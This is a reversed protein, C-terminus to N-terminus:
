FTGRSKYGFQMANFATESWASGDPQLPQRDFLTAYTTTLTHDAGDQYTSGDYSHLSLKADTGADTKKVLPIIIAARVVYNVPVSINGTNFTDRLGSSLAKNYNTDGDSLTESVNQWNNATGIPTFAANAGSASAFSPLFRIGSPCADSEGATTDVYFDDFYANITWGGQSSSFNGGFYVASINTATTNGTFSLILAGNLYFSFFGVTAHAKFTFAANMWSNATNFGASAAPYSAVITGAIVMQLDGTDRDWVVRHSAANTGGSVTLQFIFGKVGSIALLGNHNLFVSGRLEACPTIGLGIPSASSAFFLYSYTGTNAKTSSITAPTSGNTIFDTVSRNEASLQGVRVITM